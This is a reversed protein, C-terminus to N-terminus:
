EKTNLHRLMYDSKPMISYYTVCVILTIAIFVVVRHFTSSNASVLSDTVLLSLVSGLTLGQIYHDRRESVIRAYVDALEPSLTRQLRLHQEPSVTMTSYSAGAMGIGVAGALLCSVNPINMM